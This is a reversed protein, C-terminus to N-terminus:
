AFVKVPDALSLGAVTVYSMRDNLAIPQLHGFDLHPTPDLSRVAIRLNSTLYAALGPMNAGGGMILVQGITQKTGSREEYYRITRKIEKILMNMVPTLCDIIQDQKKSLSFGYKSKIITAEHPTVNLAKAILETIKDGGCAVTGSVILGGNYATIDASETGLDVLVSPVDSQTDQGFLQAGASISTELLVAELGLMRTLVLYSDVIRKPMAVLFLENPSDTRATNSYDLYLDELAAPIYQEAETRVAEDIEKPSLEPVMMSRTFARAVPLSVAVRSTTIDGVLSSKFLKQAAEAIIEPKEIVGNVVASPDFSTTGYGIIKTEGHKREVQMVRLGGRGIDLGFLPKDEFYYTKNTKTM